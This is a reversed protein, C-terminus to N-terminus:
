PRQSELHRRLRRRTRDIVMLDAQWHALAHDRQVDDLMQALARTPFVSPDIEDNDEDSEASTMQALLDTHARDLQALVAELDELKDPRAVALKVFLENRVPPLATSPTRLWHEFAEIGRPTISYVGKSQGEAKTVSVLGSAELRKLVPYLDGPTLRAAPLRHQLRTAIGYPHEAM